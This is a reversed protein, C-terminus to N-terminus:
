RTSGRGYVANDIVTGKFPDHKWKGLDGAPVTDLHCIIGFFKIGVALRRMAMIGTQDEYTKFGLEDCIKMM